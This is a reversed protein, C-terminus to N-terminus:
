AKTPLTLHTYSVPATERKPFTTTMCGSVYADIGVETLLEATRSDRCGIPGSEHMAERVVERDLVHRVHESLHFGLWVPRVAPAHPFTSEDKTFWGQMVVAFPDGFWSSLEDRDVFGDVHPLHQAIALTQIEDGINTSRSYEMLRIPLTM